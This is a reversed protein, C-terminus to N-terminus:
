VTRIPPHTQQRLAPHRRASTRGTQRRCLNLDAHGPTSKGAVVQVGPALRLAEPINTAGSRRIDDAQIVYAAAATQSMPQAKRSVSTVVVQMLEELSLALVSEM